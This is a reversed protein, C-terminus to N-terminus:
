ILFTCYRSKSMTALVAGNDRKVSAKRATRDLRRNERAAMLASCPAGFVKPLPVFPSTGPPESKSGECPSGNTIMTVEDDGPSPLVVVVALRAATNASAPDDTSTTFQSKRRGVM